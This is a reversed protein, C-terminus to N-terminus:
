NINKSIENIEKITKKDIVSMGALKKMTNTLSDSLGELM